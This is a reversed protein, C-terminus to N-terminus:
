ISTAQSKLMIYVCFMAIVKISIKHLMYTVSLFGEGEFIMGEDCQIQQAKCATLMYCLVEGERNKGETKNIFDAEKHKRNLTHVQPQHITQNLLM